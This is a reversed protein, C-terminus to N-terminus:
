CNNPCGRTFLFPLTNKQVYKMTNFASFDPMILRELRPRQTTIIKKNSIFISGSPEKKNKIIELLPVEGDTYVSFDALDKEVFYYADIEKRIQPGGVIIKSRIGSKKLSSIVYQTLPKNTSFVSFGIFRSETKLITNIISEIEKSLICRIDDFGEKNTWKYFFKGDWLEKHDSSNYCDINLDLVQTSVGNKKLFSDLSALGLPPRNPSHCPLLILTIDKL